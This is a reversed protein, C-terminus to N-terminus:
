GLPLVAKQTRELLAEVRARADDDDCEVRAFPPAAGHLRVRHGCATLEWFAGAAEDAGAESLEVGKDPGHSPRAPEIPVSERSHRQERSHRAARMPTRPTSSSLKLSEGSSKSRKAPASWRESCRESRCLLTSFAVPFVEFALSTGGVVVETIPCNRLHALHGLFAFVTVGALLSFAPAGAGLRASGGSLMAAAIGTASAGGGSVVM